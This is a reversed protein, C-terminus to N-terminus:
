SFLVKFYRVLVNMHKQANLIYNHILSVKSKFEAQQEDGIASTKTFITDFDKGGFESILTELEEHQREAVKFEPLLRTFNTLSKRSSIRSKETNESVKLRTTKTDTLRLIRQGTQM